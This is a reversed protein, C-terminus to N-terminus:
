TKNFDGRTKDNQLSCETLFGFIHQKHIYKLFCFPKGGKKMRKWKIKLVYNSFHACATTNQLTGLIYNAQTYDSGEEEFIKVLKNSITSARTPAVLCVKELNVEGGDDAQVYVDIAGARM